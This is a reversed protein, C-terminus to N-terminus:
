QANKRTKFKITSSRLEEVVGNLGRVERTVDDSMNEMDKAIGATKEINTAVEEATASQEEVAVAIQAVQDRAKQVSTVIATL